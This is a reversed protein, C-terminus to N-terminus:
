VNLETAVFYAGFLPRSVLRFRSMLSLGHVVLAENADTAREKEAWNGRAMRVIDAGGRVVNRDHLNVRGESM